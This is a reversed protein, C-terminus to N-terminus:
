PTWFAEAKSKSKGKSKSKSQKQKAKSKAKAEAVGDTPRPGHNCPLTNRQCAPWPQKEEQMPDSVTACYWDPSWSLLETTADLWLALDGPPGQEHSEALATPRSAPQSAPSSQGEAGEVCGASFAIGLLIFISSLLCHM